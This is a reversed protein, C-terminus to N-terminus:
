CNWVSMPRASGNRPLAPAVIATLLLATGIFEAAARQRL